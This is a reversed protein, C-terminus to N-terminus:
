RSVTYYLKSSLDHELVPNPGQNTETVAILAFISLRSLGPSTRPAMREMAAM